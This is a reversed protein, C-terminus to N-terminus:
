LLMKYIIAIQVILILVIAAKRSINKIRAEAIEDKNENITKQPITRM